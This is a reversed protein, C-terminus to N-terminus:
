PYSAGNRSHAHRREEELPAAAASEARGQPLSSLQLRGDAVLVLEEALVAAPDRPVLQRVRRAAERGIERWEERRQWAREMAEDLADETPAAAIFGTVDDDLLERNGAVDTVIAVRGCLMAEVLVLPLGEARSPLVLAHHSAWLADVDQAFGGFRVNELNLFSALEQLGREQEGSGYFTLSVPRARWKDRALVRLLLDQAKEKPYLRGVCALRLGMDAGPWDERREWAVNFPNRVVSARELRMALQEETLRLNHKSVFYSWRAKRYMSKIKDRRADLPWYLDTAKQSILVYPLGMRVAMRVYLWGDHNGGQSIVLLDPRRRLRVALYFCVAQYGFTLPYTLMAMASRLKRPLFPFPALTTLRCGLEALRRVRKHSLDLENKYASVRHGAAALEAAVASWLDESGGWTVNSSVFAFHKPVQSM